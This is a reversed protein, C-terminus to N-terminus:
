TPKCVCLIQKPLLLCKLCLTKITEVEYFMFDHRPLCKFCPFKLTKSLTLCKALFSDTGFLWSNRIDKTFVACFFCIVLTGTNLEPSFEPILYGLCKEPDTTVLRRQIQCASFFIQQDYALSMDAYYGWGFSGIVLIWVQAHARLLFSSNQYM